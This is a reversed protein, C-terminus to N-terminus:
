KLKKFYLPIINNKDKIWDLILKNERLEKIKFSINDKGFSEMFYYKELMSERDFLFITNGKVKFQGKEVLPNTIDILGECDNYVAYNKDSMFEIIDPCEYAYGEELTGLWVGKLDIHNFFKKDQSSCSNFILFLLLIKKM